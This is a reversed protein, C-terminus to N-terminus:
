SSQGREVERRAQVLMKQLEKGDEGDKGEVDLARELWEVAESWKGMETLCRAGIIYAKTNGPLVAGNPGPQPGRKCETSCEADKWGEVWNQAAAHANARALYSMALEERILGTPEWGPRGAAMDVVFTWLRIAEQWNGKRSSVAASDRLKTLQASRKPNVPMPPPPISNTTELGKMSQHLANLSSIADQITKSSSLSSVQKTQPDIHISVPTFTDLVDETAM